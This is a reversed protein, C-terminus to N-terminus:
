CHNTKGEQRHDTTSLLFELLQLTDDGMDLGNIIRKRRSLDQYLTIGQEEFQGIGTKYITNEQVSVRDGDIIDFTATVGETRQDNGYEGFRHM